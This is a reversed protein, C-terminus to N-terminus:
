LEKTWKEKRKKMGMVYIYFFLVLVSECGTMKSGYSNGANPYCCLYFLMFIFFFFFFLYKIVHKTSQRSKWNSLYFVNKNNFDNSITERVCLEGLFDRLINQKGVLVFALFQHFYHRTISWTKKFCQYIVCM